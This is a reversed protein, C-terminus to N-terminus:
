GVGAASRGLVFLTVVERSRVAHLPDDRGRSRGHRAPATLRALVSLGARGAAQEVFGPPRLGVREALDSLVLWARGVPTLHGGVGDLFTTLLRGGPDYVARDLPTPADGPLWPPNCVILDATGAPFPRDPEVARVEVADALGLRRANERACAVARCDADTAVVRAAGRRAPLLTLVGTGTGIDFAVKGALETRGVLGAFLDLYDRRTPAFVGYHPHVRGGLAPVEVGLQYWERAGVAGVWERLPVLLPREGAGM